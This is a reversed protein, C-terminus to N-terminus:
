CRRCTQMRFPCSRLVGLAGDIASVKMYCSWLSRTQPSSQLLRTITDIARRTVGRANVIKIEPIERRIRRVADEADAEAALDVLALDFRFRRAAEQTDMLSAEGVVYGADELMKSLTRRLTPDENVILVLADPALKSNQM